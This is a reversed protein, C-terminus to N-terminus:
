TSGIKGFAGVSFLIGMVAILGITAGATLVLLYVPWNKEDVEVSKVDSIAFRQETDTYWNVYLTDNMIQFESDSFEYEHGDNMVIRVEDPKDEKEEVMYEPVTMTRVSYCGISNIWILIILVSAISKKIM